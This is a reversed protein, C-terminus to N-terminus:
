LPTLLLRLNFDTNGLIIEYKQEILKQFKYIETNKIEQQNTNFYLLDNEFENNDNNNNAHNVGNAVNNDNRIMKEKKPNSFEFDLIFLPFIIIRM